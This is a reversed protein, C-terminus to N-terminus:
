FKFNSNNNNNQLIREYNRKLPCNPFNEKLIKSFRLNNLSSKKYENIKIPSNIIKKEKSFVLESPDTEMHHPLSVVNKDILNTFLGDKKHFANAKNALNYYSNTSILFLLISKM